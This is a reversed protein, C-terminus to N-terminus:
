MLTERFSRYRATKLHPILCQSALMRFPKSLKPGMSTKSVPMSTSTPSLLVSKSTLNSRRLSEGNRQRRSRYQNSTCASSYSLKNRHIMELRLNVRRTLSLKRKMQLTNTSLLLKASIRLSGLQKADRQITVMTVFSPGSILLIVWISVISLKKIMGEQLIKLLHCIGLSSQISKLLKRLEKSTYQISRPFQFKKHKGRLDTKERWYKNLPIPWRINSITVWLFM